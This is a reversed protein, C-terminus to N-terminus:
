AHLHRVSAKLEDLRERLKREQNSGKRCAMLRMELRSVRRLRARLERLQWGVGDEEPAQTVGGREAASSGGALPGEAAGSGQSVAVAREVARTYAVGAAALTIPPTATAVLAAAPAALVGVGAAVTAGAAVDGMDGDADGERDDAGFRAAAEAVPTRVGRSSSGSSSGEQVSVVRQHVQGAAPAGSAAGEAGSRAAAAPVVDRYPPPPGPGAGGGHGAGAAASPAAGNPEGGGRREGAKDRLSILLRLHPPLMAAAAGGPAAAAAAAAPQPRLQPPGEHVADPHSPDLLRLALKPGHARHDAANLRVSVPQWLRVAWVISGTGADTISVEESTGSLRLGRREAALFPDEEAAPGEPQGPRLPPRPLGRRDTLAVAARLHYSPIFLELRNGTIGCVLAREVHPRSHLLLLLYLESCEKQAAKAQRHRANMTAAAAALDPHLQPPPSGSLAALLQRHVVVDAYRRIPSTFHTYYQLALGYHYSLPTGPPTTGSSNYQAESMARTALSKILTAAAPDTAAAAAACARELAAALSVNSSPDVTDGGSYPEILARVQEFAQPRPPPHNRLLAAGPFAMAIREAVASNAAIMMEAVVDMMHIKKKSEVQCPAGTAPDTQFRLEASALELAGCCVRRSRLQATLEDLVKLAGRLVAVHDAPLEDGPSAPRGDLIDQAQQYHLQHRSCIVTRGYWVDKVEHEYERGEEAAAPGGAEGHPRTTRPRRRMTWIVSVALREVGQRLSCLQESLLGPLMDLRRDVLYVSTCRDRAEGDLMGGAAVFWSVDAIHVGVEVLQDGAADSSSDYLTTSGYMPKPPPPLAPLFRVHMADDVDTCGVVFYEPATLDRRTARERPPVRWEEARSVRPLESLAADCFPLSSKFGEASGVRHSIGCQVLVAESEARLDNLRGLLRTVHGRPYWGFWVSPPEGSPLAGAAGAAESMALAGEEGGAGNGDAADSLLEAGFDADPDAITATAVTAASSATAGDGPPAVASAADADPDDDDIDDNGAAAAVASTATAAVGAAGAAAAAAAASHPGGQQLLRVAVVDGEMARNLAARGSVRVLRGLAADPGHGLEVVAERPNRRSVHVVGRMLVGAALGEEVEQQTLHPTYAADGGRGRGGGGGGDGATTALKAAMLSDYLESVPSGPPWYRSVYEAASLVTVGEAAAEALNAALARELAGFGSGVEGAAAAAAAATSVAALMGGLRDSVVMVPVRAGLHHTYYLGAALVPPLSPDAGTAAVATDLCHLDDFLVARRRRDRYLARLRSAKRGSQLSVQKICSALIVYNSIDPLEFLELLESLAVDDPILYFPASASLSSTPAATAGAGSAFTAAAGFDEAGFGVRCSDCAESACSVDVRLYSEELSPTVTHTRRRYKYSLKTQCSVWAM